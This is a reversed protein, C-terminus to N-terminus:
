PIRNFHPELTIKFICYFRVKVSYKAVLINEVIALFTHTLVNLMNWHGTKQLTSLTLILDYSLGGVWSVVRCSTASTEWTQSLFKIPGSILIPNRPFDLHIYMKVHFRLPCWWVGFFLFVMPQPIKGQTQFVLLVHKM